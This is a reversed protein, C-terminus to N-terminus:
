GPGGGRIVQKFDQLFDPHPSPIFCARRDEQGMSYGHSWGGVNSGLSIVSDPSLCKQRKRYIIALIAKCYQLIILSCLPKRASPETLSTNVDPQYQSLVTKVLEWQSSKYTRGLRSLIFHPEANAKQLSCNHNQLSLACSSSLQRHTPLILLSSNYITSM